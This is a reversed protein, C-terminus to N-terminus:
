LLIRAIYVLFAVVSLAVAAAAIRRQTPEALRMFRRRALLAVAALPVAAMFYWVAVYRLRFFRWPLRGLRAADALFFLGPGAAVCLAATLAIWPKLPPEAAAVTLRLPM